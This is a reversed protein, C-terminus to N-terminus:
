ATPPPSPPPPGPAAAAPKGKVVTTAGYVIAISALLSLWLGIKREEGEILFTLVIWFAAFGALGIATPANVDTGAARAAVLAATGLGIVALVIDMFDFLQWGSLPGFWDLFLFLFLALGGAGAILEGTSVRSTNM